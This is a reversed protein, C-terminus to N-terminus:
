TSPESRTRMAVEIARAAASDDRKFLHGYIRLTIKPSAHGLRRSIVVVDLGAAIAGLCPHTAARSILGDTTQAIQWSLQDPRRPSGDLEGLLLTDADRKGLGIAM